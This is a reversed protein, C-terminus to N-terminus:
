LPPCSQPPHLSSRLLFCVPPFRSLLPSLCQTPRQRQAQNPFLRNFKSKAYVPNSNPRPKYSHIFSRDYDKDLSPACPAIQSTGVISSHMLGSCSDSNFWSRINCKGHQDRIEAMLLQITTSQLNVSPGESAWGFGLNLGILNNKAM